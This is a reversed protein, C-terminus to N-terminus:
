RISNSGNNISKFFGIRKGTQQTEVFYKMQQDHKASGRVKPKHVFVYANKSLEAQLNRNQYFYVRKLILSHM